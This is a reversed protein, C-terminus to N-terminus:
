CRAMSFLLGIIKGERTRQRVPSGAKPKSKLRFAQDLSLTGDSHVYRYFAEAVFLLTEADPLAGTLLAQSCYDIKDLPHKGPTHGRREFRMQNPLGRVSEVLVSLRDLPYYNAM